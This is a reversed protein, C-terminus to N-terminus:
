PSDQKSGDEYSACWIRWMSRLSDAFHLSFKAADFVPSQLVDQRLRARLQTLSTLANAHTQALSVYHEIDKAIWDHLGANALLGVGQRSLFNQGALTLVPVGMWLSEATTTGGPYPFPDLAIDVRNHAKLYETRSGYDELILRERPIGFNEMRQVVQQSQETEGILQAKVFLKSNPVSALIRSWTALVLDNVKSLNNFCAFTIYGQSMAPLPAVDVLPEPATFCLRTEPLRWVKETFFSEEKETLTWPDAILYDIAQLGTTAFYGLWSLQVPAPKWAFMTLRSNATHGSLDMLIDIGDERIRAALAEDSLGMASRWGSCQARLKASTGDYASRSSYAYVELQGNAHINLARLVGELFYGVPHSCLDGSVLGVRLPRDPDALNSWTTYPNALRAAAAGFNCADDFMQQVPLTPLYHQIFLLNSYAQKNDPELSIARRLKELAAEIRGTDKLTNAWNILIETSEPQRSLGEQYVTDAEQFRRTLNLVTGLNSYAMVLTPKLKLALRYKHEALDLKGFHQMLVGYDLHAEAFDPQLAIAKLFCQEAEEYQALKNLSNGLNFQAEAFKPNCAIAQRFFQIADNEKGQKKYLGGLNNYATATNPEITLADRYCAEAGSFDNRAQLVLGLTMYLEIKHPEIAIARRFSSTAEELRGSDHLVKALGLCANLHHSDLRLAEHYHDLAQELLLKDKEGQIHREHTAAGIKYHLEADDPTLRIARLYHDQAERLRRNQRQVDGLRGHLQANDPHQLLAKQYNQAAQDNHGLQELASGLALWADVLDPKINLAKQYATCAVDLERLELYANGMNFHASAADPKLALAKQYADIAERNHGEDLLANAQDFYVRAKAFRAEPSVASPNMFRGLLGM